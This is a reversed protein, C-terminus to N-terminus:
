RLARLQLDKRQDFLTKDDAKIAKGLMYVLASEPSTTQTM